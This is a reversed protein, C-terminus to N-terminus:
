LLFDLRIHYNPAVHSQKNSISDANNNIGMEAAGKDHDGGSQM